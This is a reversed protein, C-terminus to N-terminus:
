RQAFFRGISDEEAIREAIGRARKPENGVACLVEEISIPFSSGDPDKWEPCHAHTYDRIEYRGMGGFKEWVEDMAWMGSKSLHGLKSSDTSVGPKVSIMNDELASIFDNWGGQQSEVCGNMRNLTESLVPGHPMSVFHDGTITSAYNKLSTRESLYMLKMLKLHSMPRGNKRLLYVAMHAAAKEDFMTSSPAPAAGYQCTPQRTDLM